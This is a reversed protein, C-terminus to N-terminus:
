SSIILDNEKFWADLIANDKKVVYGSGGRGKVDEVMSLLLIPKSEKSDTTFVCFWGLETGNRDDKSVKIEATGTKGALAIDKRYARRGTGNPSSIVKELDNKIIYATDQQFASEIWVEPDVESKYLLYPMLVDGDNAFGTYLSALHIPNILIQGQGYGSDALQIESEISGDNDYQSKSLSLEFPIEQKFQLAELETQLSEAGIKLAAKAFYINDSNIMANELTAPNTAHLTTVRYNGWSADKQWSLGAYGFDDQPDITGLDLGIAAVIPKFSSGPCLKQVYRNYLPLREDMNLENWLTESMGYIFDNSNFSPTSVLALVEGTYPNMAVSCSKDEKFNEYISEQLKADITLQIDKGDQKPISALTSKVNGESDVIIIKKGNQGKLEKEYLRELGSRGIKSSADYGEGVHKELDEATVSQIYGTLHSTAAGFPYQRIEVDSIMVGPISLLEDRLKKKQELVEPLEVYELMELNSLREVTKIPVFLDDKVWKATLKSKISDVSVGILSALKELDSDPTERLKGPIIGISSAIGQGAMVMGNRDLICGREARTTVVQVKDEADLEPFIMSDHWLITYHMQPEDLIKLTTWNSFSIDGAVTSMEVDYSIQIMGLQSDDVNYIQISFSNAEIGDYIKQNRNVFQDLSIQQKSESDLMEYMKEFEGNQIFEYYSTIMEEPTQVPETHSIFFVKTLIAVAIIIFGLGVTRKSLVKSKKPFHLAKYIVFTLNELM